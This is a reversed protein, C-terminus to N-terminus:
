ATAAQRELWHGLEPDSVAARINRGLPTRFMLLWVGAAILIAIYVARM